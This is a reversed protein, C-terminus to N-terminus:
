RGGDVLDPQRREQGPPTATEARGPRAPDRRIRPNGQSSRTGTQGHRRRTSTRDSGQRDVSSPWPSGDSTLTARHAAQLLPAVAGDPGPGAPLIRRVRPGGDAAPDGRLPGQAVAARWRGGGRGRRRGVPRLGGGGAHR